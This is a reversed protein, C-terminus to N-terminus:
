PSGCIVFPEKKTGESCKELGVTFSLVEENLHM